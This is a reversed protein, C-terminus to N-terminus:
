YVVWGAGVWGCGDVGGVDCTCCIPVLHALMALISGPRVALAMLFRHFEMLAGKGGDVEGLGGRVEGNGM